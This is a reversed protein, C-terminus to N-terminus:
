GPITTLLLVDKLAQLQAIYVSNIKKIVKEIHKSKKNIKYSQFLGFGM